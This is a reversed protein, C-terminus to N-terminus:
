AESEGIAKLAARSYDGPKYLIAGLSPYGAEARRENWIDRLAECFAERPEEPWKRVVELVEYDAAPDTSFPWCQDEGIVSQGHWRDVRSGDPRKWHRGTGLLPMPHHEHMTWGMVKEAVRANLAPGAVMTDIDAISDAM